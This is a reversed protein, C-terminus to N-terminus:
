SSCDAPSHTSLTSVHTGESLSFQTMARGRRPDSAASSLLVAIAAQALAGPALPPAAGVTKTVALWWRSLEPLNDWGATYRFDLPGADLNATIHQWVGIVSTLMVIVAVVRAVHVRRATQGRSLLGISVVLLAIAGWAILQGPQTWHREVALEVASGATTLAALGLLGRRLWPIPSHRDVPLSTPAAM